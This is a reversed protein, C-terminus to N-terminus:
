QEWEIDDNLLIDRLYKKALSTDAQKIYNRVSDKYTTSTALDILEEDFLTLGNAQIKHIDKQVEKKSKPNWGLSEITEPTIMNKDVYALQKEGDYFIQYSKSWPGQAILTIKDPDTFKNDSYGVSRAHRKLIDMVIKVADENESETLFNSISEKVLRNLKSETINLIRNM